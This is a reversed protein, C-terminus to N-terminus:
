RVLNKLLFLFMTLLAVGFSFMAAIQNGLLLGYEEREERNGDLYEIQAVIEAYEQRAELFGNEDAVREERNDLFRYLDALNGRRIYKPLEKEM